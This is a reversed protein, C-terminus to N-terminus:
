GVLGKFLDLLKDVFGAEEEGVDEVFPEPVTVGEASIIFTTKNVNTNAGSVYSKPFEVAAAGNISIDDMEFNKVDATIFLDAETGPYVIFTINENAGADTMTTQITTEAVQEATQEEVQEKTQEESDTATTEGRAVGEAHIHDCLAPDLTFSTQLMYTQFFSADAFAPNRRVQLRIELEGEQGALEDKEVEEGDLTYVIDFTWPLEAKDIDGQYYFKGEEATFTHEDKDSEITELNTLNQVKDYDGYDTIEGEKTVHFTNVVYAGSVEGNQELRVYVNENKTYEADSVAFATTGLTFILGLALAGSMLKKGYKRM